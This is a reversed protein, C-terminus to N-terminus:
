RTSSPGPVLRAQGRRKVQEALERMSQQTIILGRRRALAAEAEDLSAPFDAWKRERGEWLSLAEQVAEEPDHFRGSELAQRIFAKQDPTLRVEM